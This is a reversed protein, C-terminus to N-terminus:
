PNNRLYEATFKAGFEIILSRINKALSSDSIRSLITKTQHTAYSTRPSDIILDDIYESFSDRDNRDEILIAYEHFLKKIYVTWPYPNACNDCYYPLTELMKGHVPLPNAPEFRDDYYVSGKIDENCNPCKSHTKSGCRTCYKVVLNSNYRIGDTIIHGKECILATDRIEMIIRM